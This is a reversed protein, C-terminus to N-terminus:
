LLSSIELLLNTAKNFIEIKYVGNFQSVIQAVEIATEQNNLEVLSNDITSQDVVEGSYDETKYISINFLNLSITNILIYHQSM